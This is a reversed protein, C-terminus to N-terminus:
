DRARESGVKFYNTASLEEQIWYPVKAGLKEALAAIIRPTSTLSREAADVTLGLKSLFAPVGPSKWVERRPKYHILRNRYGIMAELSQYPEGGPDFGQRGLVQPLFLWKGELSLKQFQEHYSGKLYEESRLNIHAELSAACFIHTAALAQLLPAHAAGLSYEASEMQIYIPELDDYAKYFDDGHRLLAAQERAVLKEFRARAREIQSIHKKGSELAGRAAHLCLADTLLTTVLEPPARHEIM